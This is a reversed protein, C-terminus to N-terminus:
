QQWPNRSSSSNKYNPLEYEHTLWQKINDYNDIYGKTLFTVIDMNDLSPYLHNSIRTRYKDSFSSNDVYNTLRGSADERCVGEWDHFRSTVFNFSKRWLTHRTVCSRGICSCRLYFSNTISTSLNCLQLLDLLSVLMQQLLNDCRRLGLRLIQRIWRCFHNKQTGLDCLQFGLKWHSPWLFGM